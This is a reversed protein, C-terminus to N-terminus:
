VHMYLRVRILPSCYVHEIYRWLHVKGLQSLGFWVLLSANPMLPEHHVTSSKRQGPTIVNNEPAAHLIRLPRRDPKSLEYDLWIM